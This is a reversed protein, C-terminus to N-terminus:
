RRLRPWLRTKSGADPLGRFSVLSAGLVLKLAGPDEFRDPFPEAANRM